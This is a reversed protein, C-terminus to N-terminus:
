DHAAAIAFLGAVGVFIVALLAIPLSDMPGGGAVTALSCIDLRTAPWAESTRPDPEM